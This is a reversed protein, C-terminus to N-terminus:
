ARCPVVSPTQLWAHGPGSDPLGPASASSGVVEGGVPWRLCSAQRASRSPYVTALVVGPQCPVEISPPRARARGCRRERPSKLAAARRRTTGRCAMKGPAIPYQVIDLRGVPWRVARGTNSACSHRNHLFLIIRPSQSPSPRTRSAERQRAAPHVTATISEGRKAARTGQPPAMGFFHEHTGAFGNIGDVPHSALPYACLTPISQGSSMRKLRVSVIRCRREKCLVKRLRAYLGEM